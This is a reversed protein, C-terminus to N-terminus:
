KEDKDYKPFTVNALLVSSESQPEASIGQARQRQFSQGSKRGGGAAMAGAGGSAAGGCPTTAGSRSFPFVSQFKDLHSKLEAIENDKYQLARQMEQIKLDKAQICQMLREEQPTAPVYSSNLLYGSGANPDMVTGSNTPTSAPPASICLGQMQAALLKQQTCFDTPTTAYVTGQTASATPQLIIPAAPPGSTFLGQTQAQLQQLQQYRQQLQIEQQHLYNRTQLNPDTNLQQAGTPVTGYILTHTLVDATNLPLSLRIAGTGNDILTGSLASLNNNNVLGLDPQFQINANPEQQMKASEEGNAVVSNQSREERQDQDAKNVHRLEANDAAVAVDTTHQSPFNNAEGLTFTSHKELININSTPTTKKEIDKEAISEPSEDAPTAERQSNLFASSNKHNKNQKEETEEIVLNNNPPQQKNISTNTNTNIAHPPDLANISAGDTPGLTTAVSRHSITATTTGTSATYSSTNQQQLPALPARPADTTAAPSTTIVSTATTAPPKRVNYTQLQQETPPSSTADNARRNSSSETTPAPRERAFCLRDFCIRM